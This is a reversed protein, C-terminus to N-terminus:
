RTEDVSHRRLVSPCVYLLWERFFFGCSPIQVSIYKRELALFWWNCNSSLWICCTASEQSKSYNWSQNCIGTHGEIRYEHTHEAGFTRNGITINLWKIRLYFGFTYNRLASEQCIGCTEYLDSFTGHEKDTCREINTNYFIKHKRHIYQM